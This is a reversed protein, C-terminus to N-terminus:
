RRPVDLAEIRLPTGQLGTVSWGSGNIAVDVTASGIRLGSVRLPVLEAPPVPGCTVTGRPVDPDLRLLSRLVLVPAAAAAAHPACATPYPVPRGTEARDFGGFMEPLRHGLAGSTRLLAMALQQAEDTFGYRVLGAICLATDHPWVSGNHPSMPDHAGMSTALTRVGWGSFLAPSVLGAAVASAYEEDVIGAWLAHGPNSALADVPRKHGDLAVAFWGREPLWFHAHFRRRLEAARRRCREATVADDVADALHARALYAAYTYAQVEVLAIPPEAPRGDAHRIGDLSDKWGQHLRGRPTARRYEVFGDGDADGYQEIWGLARDAHPLLDAVEELPAGWRALEDLVVVFLATADATGYSRDRTGPALSDPPGFRMAHMIRGPQEDTDPDVVAGQFSALTKLTGLALGRDLPLLMLATLLADRGFLALSWPAGAAVLAREPHEPDVIRLAGLDEVSRRLVAALDPDATELRPADARGDRARRVPHSPTADQGRPHHLTLRRGAVAPEVSVGAHWEGHAPVHAEWCFGDAHVVPEGNAGVTVVHDHEPATLVLADSGPTATVAVGRGRGERVAFLDAFDAAVTLAVRCTTPRATSNRVVLDERMGEGVFRRRTVLLSGHRAGEPDGPVHLLVSAAFPEDVDARLLEGPVGDVTLEWRALARVDRVFLGQPHWPVIDGSAASRCLTSGQVLTLGEAGPAPTTM